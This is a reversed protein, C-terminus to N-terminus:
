KKEYWKLRKQREQNTNMKDWVNRSVDYSTLIFHRVTIIVVPRKDM